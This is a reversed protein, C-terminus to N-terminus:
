FSCLLNNEMKNFIEYYQPFKKSFINDMIERAKNNQIDLHRYPRRVFFRKPLFIDSKNNTVFKKINDSLGSIIKESFPTDYEIGFLYYFFFIISRYLNNDKKFANFPTFPNPTYNYAM